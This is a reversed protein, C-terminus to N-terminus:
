NTVVTFKKTWGEAPLGKVQSDEIHISHLQKIIVPLNDIPTSINTYWTKDGFLGNRIAIKTPFEPNEPDRYAGVYEGMEVTRVQGQQNFRLRYEDSPLGHRTQGTLNRVDKYSTYGGFFLGVEKIHFVTEKRAPDIEDYYLLLSSRGHLDVRLQYTYPGSTQHVINLEVVNDSGHSIVNVDVTVRVTVTDDIYNHLYDDVRQLATVPIYRNILELLESPYEVHNGVETPSRNFIFKRNLIDSKSRKRAGVEQWM